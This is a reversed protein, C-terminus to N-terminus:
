ALTQGPLLPPMPCGLSDGIARFLEAESDAVEGDAAIVQACARLVLEKARSDLSAALGLAEDLAALGVKDDDLLRLEAKVLTRGASAVSERMASESLNGFRALTSLITELVQQLQHKSRLRRAPRHVGEFNPALHTLLIRQLAWEFLDIRQDAQVLDQVVGRFGEYQSASLDRLAPLVLDILPLRHARGLREVEPLLKRTLEPVGREGKADIIDIQLKRSEPDADMLLAYVVARAAYPDHAAEKVAPPLERLLQVAYALHATSIRGMQDVASGAFAPAVGGGAFGATAAGSSPAAESSIETMEGQWSPDLIKIREALPPHTAFLSNFGSRLAQGFFLHSSEPAAASEMHSGADFGGIKKLAGSIGDPNRTFQVASADALFERQRSVSAKILNGFLTGIFGLAMLAIGGAVMAMASNDKSNRRSAAGAWLSSRLLFYGVMGIVLIGYLVGMLRINLRIDGNMIHSFEHAVVGQLEDRSLQEACGRTIGIVADSPSFGAAFANIGGEHDLLYVAPTPIGSAIAMEEVVNLIKRELPANSDAHLLRGGLGEAVVRGGGSLQSIRYLSAGGVVVLTLLGVHLMLLPDLWVIEFVLQDTRPDTGRFGTAVAALVYLGLVLAVVALGFLFVLRTTHRRARDQQEFFQTAM